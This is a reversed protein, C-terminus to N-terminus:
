RDANAKLKRWRENWDLWDRDWPEGVFNTRASSMTTALTNLQTRVQSTEGWKLQAELLSLLNGPYEPCLEVAKRLHLRAKTRSGLSTPWGPADLYLLGLSRHPGAYDFKADLTAATTWATQMQTLLKLAGLLKTQALQGLNLGLYYHAAASNTALQLAHRSALIGQEALAARQTHNTAFDARDFCARALQWAAEANTPNARAREVSELHLHYVRNSATLAPSGSGPAPATEAALGITATLALLPGLSLGARPRFRASNPIAM